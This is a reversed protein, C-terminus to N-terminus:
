KNQNSQEFKKTVLSINQATNVNQKSACIALYIVVVVCKQSENENGDYIMCILGYLRCLLM